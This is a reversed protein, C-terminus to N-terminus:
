APATSPARRAWSIATVGATYVALAALTVLRFDFTIALIVALITGVVTACGNAAWAWPVLHRDMAAVMTVGIPFFTGLVIGLPALLAISIAVRVPLSAGLTTDFLPKLGLLYATVICALVVLGRRLAREDPRQLLGSAFSGIGTFTLLSFLVVSLAYTPYGLYLVFRQIFSIELFIFGVGLAVFYALYGARRPVPRGRGRVRLLPALILVVASVMSQVLMIALVIQGTALTRAADVERARRPLRLWKYFSFFFPSEDTTARLNLDEGGYWAEREADDAWFIRAADHAVRRDPRQWFVFGEAEVYADLRAIEEPTFPENKVLTHILPIESRNAVMVVHREPAAVGRALLARRVNSALRFAHRPRMEPIDLDSVAQAFVGGPKLHALFDGVADTTYLYSESLVYAGSSLASLTDVGNIEIVDYRDDHSRLYHRGEAAVMTVEPRTFIGGTYADYPGTDLAVTVPNLEVGVIRHAHNGVANLVDAGGGVGIILVDPHEHNLYPVRLVHHQLFELQKPDGNLHYMVACSDGDYGIMRFNPAPGQFKPSVGWTRYSSSTDQKAEDWAVVDVRNIPTWRHYISQAGVFYHASIWKTAAPRFEVRTALVVALVAAGAAAVTLTVSPRVAFVLAALAFATASLAVVVPTGLWWILPAVLLCALGAGVLDFFYLRAVREPAVSLVGAVAFGSALFPVTVVVYYVVLNVLERRDRLVALPELPVASVVAIVLVVGIAAWTCARRMLRSPDDLLTPFAVLMSGASGFGLLAVSITLYAFHYWITFSFIRTLAIELLLVGFSTFFIGAALNPRARAPGQPTAM